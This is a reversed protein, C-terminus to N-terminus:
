RRTLRRVRIVARDHSAVTGSIPGSECFRVRGDAADASPSSSPLFRRGGVRPSSLAARRLDGGDSLQPPGKAGCRCRTGPADRSIPLVLPRARTGGETRRRRAETIGRMSDDEGLIAVFNKRALSRDRCGSWRKAVRLTEIVIERM